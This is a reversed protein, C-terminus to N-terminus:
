TTHVTWWKRPKSALEKPTQGLTFHVASRESPRLHRQCGLSGTVGTRPSGARHVAPARATLCVLISRSYTLPSSPYYSFSAESVQGIQGRPRPQSTMPDSVLGSVGDLNHDVWPGRVGEALTRVSGSEDAKKRGLGQKLQLDLSYAPVRLM